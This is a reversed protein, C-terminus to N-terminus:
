SRVRGPEHGSLTASDREMHLPVLIATSLVDTRLTLNKPNKGEILIGWAIM